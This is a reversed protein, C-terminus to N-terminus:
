GTASSPQHNPSLRRSFNARRKGGNSRALLSADGAAIMDRGADPRAWCRIARPGLGLGVRGLPRAFSDLVGSAAPHRALWGAGSFVCRLPSPVFVPDPGSGFAMWGQQARARFAPARACGCAGAGGSGLVSRTARVVLISSTRFFLYLNALLYWWCYITRGRSQVSPSASVAHSM